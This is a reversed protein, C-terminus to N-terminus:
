RFPVERVSKVPKEGEKQLVAAVTYTGAQQPTKCPIVLSSSGFPPLMVRASGQSVIESGHFIQIRVTGHCEEELDNIVIVRFDHLTDTGIGTGWEDLMLGVPSFADPMYKLFEGDYTLTAVDVFHDSTQGDVRSYGLATFHMVAACQRHCRWFETEAALYSAYLHRRQEVSSHAGLLNEYLQRTLTTPSGDRNLWLWGYENVVVPYKGENATENGGPIPNAGAIDTLKFNSDQFHYPHSEFV